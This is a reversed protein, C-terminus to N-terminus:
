RGAPPQLLAELEADRSALWDVPLGGDDARRARDAGDAILWRVTAEDVLAAAVHLDTTGDAAAVRREAGRERLLELMRTSGSSAAMLWPTWGERNRVEIAAGADLLLRASEVGGSMRAALMLPTTGSDSRANPDAGLALLAAVRAPDHVATHLPTLGGPGAARAEAPSLAQVAVFDGALAVMVAGDDATPARGRRVVEDTGFAASPAPDITNGLAAVALATAAFSLFQDEGHPFGSDFQELGPETRRTPVHWSGDALQTELLFQLARAIPPADAAVRGAQLLAVTAEATSYADSPEDDCQSWGGDRRQTALLDATAQHLAAPEAGSWALGLLRFARDETTRAAVNTLWARARRVVRDVEDIRAPPAYVRVARTALATATVQSTEHPPRHSESRWNGAPGVKALLLCALATTMPTGAAGAAAAAVLQYARGFQPNVGARLELAAPMGGSCTTALREVQSALRARDFTMNREALFSLALVGLAHHHCSTCSRSEFWEDMSHQMLPLASAIAAEARARDALPASVVACAATLAIVLAAVLCHRQM